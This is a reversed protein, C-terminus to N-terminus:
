DNASNGFGGVGADVSCVGVERSGEVEDVRTTACIGPVADLEVAKICATRIVVL